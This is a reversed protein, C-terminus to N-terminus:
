EDEGTNIRILGSHLHRSKCAKFSEYSSYREPLGLEEREAELREWAARNTGVEPLIEYFRAFYGPITLTQLVKAPISANEPKEHEM